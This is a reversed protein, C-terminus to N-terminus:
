VFEEPKTIRKLASGNLNNKKNKNLIVTTLGTLDYIFFM